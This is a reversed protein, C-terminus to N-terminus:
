TLLIGIVKNRAHLLSLSVFVFLYIWKGIMLPYQRYPYFNDTSESICFRSM